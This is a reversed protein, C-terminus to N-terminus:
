VVSKRDPLGAGGTPAHLRPYSADWARSGCVAAFELYLRAQHARDDGARRRHAPLSHHLLMARGEGARGLRHPVGLRWLDWASGFSNPLIVGFGPNIARLARAAAADLRRGSFGVAREVWPVMQWFAVLKDPAVVYLRVGAPLLEHLRYLGPLAMVSDGLWNTARVLMGGRWDIGDLDVHTSCLPPEFVPRYLSPLASM